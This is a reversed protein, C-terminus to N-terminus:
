RFLLRAIVRGTHVTHDYLIGLHGGGVARPGEWSCNAVNRLWVSVALLEADIIGDALANSCLRLYLWTM